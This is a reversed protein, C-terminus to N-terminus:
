KKKPIKPRDNDSSVGKNAGSEQRSFNKRKPTAHGRKNDKDNRGGGSNRNKDESM